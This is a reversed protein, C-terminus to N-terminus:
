TGSPQVASLQDAEPQGVLEAIVRGIRQEVNTLHQALSQASEQWSGWDIGIGATRDAIERRRIRGHNVMEVHEVVIAISSWTDDDVWSAINHMDEPRTLVYGRESSQVIPYDQGQAAQDAEWEAISRMRQLESLVVRLSGLAQRRRARFEHTARTDELNRERQAKKEDLSDERDGRKKELRHQILGGFLVGGIGAVLAGLPIVVDRWGIDGRGDDLVRIGIEDPTPTAAQAFLILEHLAPM